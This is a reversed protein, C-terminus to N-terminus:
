PTTVGQSERSISGWAPRVGADVLDRLLQASAIITPIGAPPASIVVQQLTAASERAALFILSSGDPSWAPSWSRGTRTVELVVEGTAASLIVVDSGRKDIRTVAVWRGDPSPAPEIYGPVGFRAVSDANIDYYIIRSASAGDRQGNQVYYLGSGDVSWAPDQHGYPAEDPLVPTHIRGDLTLLRIIVDGGLQSSSKFDTALAVEGNPGLAPGFMFSSLNLKPNTDVILGDLIAEAEGGRAGIRMLTPVNLRYPTIGGAANVRGGIENRTRIFYLWTGDRSWAVGADTSSETVQVLAAGSLTWLAGDRAFVITGNIQVGDTVPAGDGQDVAEKSSLGAIWATGLASALLLLAAVFPAFKPGAGLWGSGGSGPPPTPPRLGHFPRTAVARDSRLRPRPRLSRGGSM